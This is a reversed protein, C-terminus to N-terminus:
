AAVCLDPSAPELSPLPTEGRQDREIVEHAGCTPCRRDRVVPGQCRRCVRIDVLQLARRMWEQSFPMVNM